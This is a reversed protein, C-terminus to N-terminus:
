ISIVAMAAGVAASASWALGIWLHPYVENTTPHSSLCVVAVGGMGLIVCLVQLKSIAERLLVAAFVFVLLSFVSLVTTVKGIPASAYAMVQGVFVM